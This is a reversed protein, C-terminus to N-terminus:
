PQLLEDNVITESTNQGQGTYASWLFWGAVGMVVVICLPLIWRTVNDNSEEGPAMNTDANMTFGVPKSAPKKTTTKKTAM